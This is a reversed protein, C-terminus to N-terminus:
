EASLSAGTITIKPEQDNETYDASGSTCLGLQNITQGESMLAALKATEIRFIGSNELAQTYFEEASHTHGEPGYEKWTECLYEEKTEADVQIKFILSLMEEEPVLDCIYAINLYKNANLEELTIPSAMPADDKGMLWAGQRYYVSFSMESATLRDSIDTGEPLTPAAPPTTAPAETAATTEAATTVAPTTTTTETTTVSEESGDEGGCGTLISTCLTLAFILALTKKM